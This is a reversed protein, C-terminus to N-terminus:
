SMSLFIVFSMKNTFKLILITLHSKHSTVGVPWRRNANCMAHYQVTTYMDHIVNSSLRQMVISSETYETQINPPPDNM